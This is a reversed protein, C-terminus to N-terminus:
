FYPFSGIKFYFLFQMLSGIYVSLVIHKINFTKSRQKPLTCHLFPTIFIMSLIIIVSKYIIFEALAHNNSNIHQFEETSLLGNASLVFHLFCGGLLLFFLFLGPKKASTSYKEFKSDDIKVVGSRSFYECLEQIRAEKQNSSIGKAAHANIMRGLVGVPCPKSQAHDMETFIFEDTSQTLLRQAIKPISGIRTAYKRPIRSNIVFVITLGGAMLIGAWQVLILSINVTPTMDGSKPPDCIFAHELTRLMGERIFNQFPPYAITGM